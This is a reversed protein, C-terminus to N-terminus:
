QTLGSYLLDFPRVFFLISDRHGSSEAKSLAEGATKGQALVKSHDEALAVWKGQYDKILAALDIPKM